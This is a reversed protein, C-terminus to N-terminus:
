LGAPLELRFCAGGACDGKRYELTGGLMGAWRRALALGLGVGGATVEADRGRRFPRFISRKERAKVGPGCDEVEFILRGSGSALARCWVRKDSASQSYKCANDILNGIIQQVLASDTVLKTEAPLRNDAVLEKQLATCREQWTSRVTELLESVLIEKPETKASQKELRAFDLVNGILRHLRESEGQLTQLYEQKQNEDQVMGSTLLDLYLRLTTMPTRLEHTVASVFRIRRESLDILSWGGLGVALLATLAAAWALCLGIRLPTWGASPLPDMPGPDLELPLASMVRDRHAPPGDPLPVLRADPFLDGILDRLEGELQSWDIVLGQVVDKTGVKALRVYLLREPKEPSPMWIPVMSGVRVTQVKPSLSNTATISDLNIDPDVITQVPQQQPQANTVKARNALDSNDNQGRVYTNNTDYNNGNFRQGSQRGSNGQPNAAQQVQQAWAGQQTANFNPVSNGPNDKTMEMGVDNEAPLISRSQVQALLDPPSHELMDKFLDARESTVNSLPLSFPPKRLKEVIKEPLVEPSQWNDNCKNDPSYQFHLVMWDPLPADLLPSPVRVTGPECLAAKGNMAPIPAHLASYHAYPRGDERALQPAMWGDLRWLALSIQEAREADAAAQRQHKELRLAESTAWGLGGGVLAAILLFLSLRQLWRSM